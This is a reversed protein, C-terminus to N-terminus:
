SIEERSERYEKPVVGYEKKFCKTFYSHNSFGVMYMVESVTLQGQSLYMAAKKLRISRIFEVATLGTIQKLRRYLQKESTGCRTCLESVNLDPDSISAEIQATVKSLFAEDPGVAPAPEDPTVIDQQVQRRVRTRSKVILNAMRKELHQMDFPKTLFDDAVELLSLETHSDDLATLVVIPVLATNINARLRRCLEYGDVGPMM